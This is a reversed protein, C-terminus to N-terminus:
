ILSTLLPDDLGLLLMTSILVVVDPRPEVFEYLLLAFSEVRGSGCGCGSGSGLLGGCGSGSGCGLLGDAYESELKDYYNVYTFYDM